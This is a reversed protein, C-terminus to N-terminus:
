NFSMDASVKRCQVREARGCGTESSHFAALTRAHYGVQFGPLTKALAVPIFITECSSKRRPFSEPVIQMYHARTEIERHYQIRIGGEKLEAGILPLDQTPFPGVRPADLSPTEICKRIEVISAHACFQNRWASLLLCSRWIRIPQPALCTAIAGIAHWVDCPM